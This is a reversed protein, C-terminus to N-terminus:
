WLFANRLARLGCDRSRSRIGAHNPELSLGAGGQLCSGEQLVQKRVHPSLPPDRTEEELASIGDHPGGGSRM